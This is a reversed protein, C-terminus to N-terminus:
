LNHNHAVFPPAVHPPVTGCHYCWMVAVQLATHSLASYSVILQQTSEILDCHLLGGLVESAKERVEQWDDELLRLVIDLM